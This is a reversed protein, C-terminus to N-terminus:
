CLDGESVLSNEREPFDKSVVREPNWRSVRSPKALRQQLLLLLAAAAETMKRIGNLENVLSSARASISALTTDKGCM